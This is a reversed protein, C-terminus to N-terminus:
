GRTRFFVHSRLRHGPPLKPHEFDFRADREMGVRGFVALSRENVAATFGVVHGLELEELGFRLVGRAAETAYGHGWSAPELRWFIEVAPAFAVEISVHHLGFLGRFDGTERCVGVWAGFGHEEQHLLLHGLQERTQEESVRAPFHRMVAPDRNLGLLLGLDESGLPRLMLRPTDLTAAETKSM